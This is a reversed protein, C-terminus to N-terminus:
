PLNHSYPPEPQETRPGSLSRPAVTSPEASFSGVAVADILGTAPLDSELPTLFSAVFPTGAGTAALQHKKSGAQSTVM